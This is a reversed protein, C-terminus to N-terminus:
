NTLTAQHQQWPISGHPGVFYNTYINRVRQAEKSSHYGRLYPIPQIGANPGLYANGDPNLRAMVAAVDNREETLYNHLICTAKVVSICTNESIGLRRDYIRFRQALIGFANEVLRRARSLRYNFIMKPYPLNTGRQNRPYPRLLDAQLPFAEDGVFCCPLDEGQGPPLNDLPKPPPVDLQGYMFAKGFNCSRFIATDSNSGYDGVDIYIFKYDADVLAMLVISFFGKYNHFLTSSKPPARLNVHKGDIAGLCNPFQWLSNFRLQIRRWDQVTPPKMYTPQLEEWIQDCTEKVIEAVTSIGLRFRGALTLYSDGTALFSFFFFEYYRILLVRM